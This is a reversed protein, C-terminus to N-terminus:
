GLDTEDDDDDDVEPLKRGWIALWVLFVLGGGFLAVLALMVPRWHAGLQSLLYLNALIGLMPLLPVWPVRFPRALDPYLRRHVILAMNVMTLALLLVTDAFHALEELPLFVAFGAVAAGVLILAAKPAHTKPDLAALRSPLHRQRSMTMAVRSGAMISANSASIMSFLAGGVIVMGGAPGLFRRAAEGMAAEDYSDLGAAVVVLVVLTYLVTVVFMSIFIAQPVTQVPDKVEGAMAAIASFGFFTIFVMGATGGIKPLDWSFQDLVPDITTASLGSLVFWFLLLVKGLTVTIQFISSEETGKINLWTLGLAALVATMWEWPLAWVFEHVYSALSLLYFSCSSVYGLLLAWGVFWALHKPLTKRAYLYGEGSRPYLASFECYSLATFSAVAAALLFAIIASSGVNRVALGSLTFIGAAIMTGIGVSLATALGLTRKPRGAGGGGTASAAM